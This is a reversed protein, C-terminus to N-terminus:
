KKRILKKYLAFFHYNKTLCIFWFNNWSPGINTLEKVNFKIDVLFDSLKIWKNQCYSEKYSYLVSNKKKNLCNLIYKLIEMIEYFLVLLNLHIFLSFFRPSYTMASYSINCNVIILLFQYSPFFIIIESFYFFPLVGRSTFCSEDLKVSWTGRVTRLIGM